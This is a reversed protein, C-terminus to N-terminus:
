SPNELMWIDSVFDFIACVFSIPSGSSVTSCEMQRVPSNGMRHLSPPLTLPEMKGALNADLRYLTPANYRSAYVYRGDGSWGRPWMWQNGIKKPPLHNELDFIWLGLDNAGRNWAVALRKGDPSYRPSMFWALSDPTILRRRGDSRPDVLILNLHPRDQYAIYDSPAWALQLRTVPEVDTRGLPRLHGDRVDAIWVRATASDQRVFAIQSADKSWAINATTLVRANTTIQRASGGAVPMSFLEARGGKEEAYAIWKGDPSVIPSWKLATGETLKVLGPTPGPTVLWINSYAKGRAYVIKRANSTMDFALPGASLKFIELQDDILRPPGRPQGTQPSVSIRWIADTGRTYYLVDDNLAWRPMGLMVTDRLVTIAKGNQDLAQIMWFAPRSNRIALALIEGNHSWSGDTIWDYQGSVPIASTDGTLPNVVLIRRDTDDHLSLRRTEGSGRMWEAHVNGRFTEAARLSAVQGGLRPLILVRGHNRAGDFSGILLKTGDPSWELNTVDDVTIVTDSRGGGALDQVVVHISDGAEVASALFQGDPSIAPQFTRGSFTLQKAVVSRSVSAHHSAEIYAVGAGLLLLAGAIAALGKWRGTHGRAAPQSLLPPLRSERRVSDDDRNVAGNKIEEVLARTEPSPEIEYEAAIRKAFADYSQIVGAHDGSQNQLQFLRRFYREDTDGLEAARRAFEIARDLNRSRAYDESVLAAARTAAARLGKREAFVWQDFQPADDIFFGTLLDGGYFLLAKEPCTPLLETFRTADCTIRSLDVAVEDDGRSVVVDEGLSRRLVHIGKRLSARAHEQDSDPWFLGVLADRRHFGRPEAVCLYALLAIRKPQALLPALPEGHRPHLDLTGLVRLEFEVLDTVGGGPAGKEARM